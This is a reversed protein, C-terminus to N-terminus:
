APSPPQDFARIQPIPVRRDCTASALFLAKPSSSELARRSRSASGVPSSDTTEGAALHFSGVWGSGSLTSPALSADTM